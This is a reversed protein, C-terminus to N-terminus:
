EPRQYAVFEGPNLRAKTPNAAIYRRLYQFEDESRILHDFADSQWFRGKGKLKRNLQTATYRKWSECQALMADPDRFACLLHVHNPMVVFDTILYDVENRFLLSDVIVKACAPDKLVCQGHARDLEDHWRNWFTAQFEDYLDPHRKRFSERWNQDDPNIGHKVAAMPPSQRVVHRAGAEANFGGNALHRIGLHGGSGL